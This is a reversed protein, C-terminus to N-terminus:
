GKLHWWRGRFASSVSPQSALPITRAPSPPTLRWGLRGGALCTIGKDRRSGVASPMLAGPCTPLGWLLAKFTLRLSLLCHATQNEEKSYLPRKLYLLFTSSDTCVFLPSVPKNDWWRMHAGPSTSERYARYTLLDPHWRLCRHPAPPWPLIDM